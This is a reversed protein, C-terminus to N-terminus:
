KKSYILISSEPMAIQDNATIIEPASDGPGSWQEEASDIVKKFKGKLGAPIKASGGETGFNIIALIFDDGQWREVIVSREFESVRMNKKDPVKLVPHERRLKILTKYYEFMAQKEKSNGIRWSLISRQFTEKDSPDPAEKGYKFFSKFERSRGERVQKNLEPDLHSVFYLFPNREAYEEGMFLMPINPTVCMTGAAVKALELSTLSILREGYKRNGVQDHNQHYIVFQEGPLDGASSGYTKKRFQSYKGDYIFTQEIAKSLQKIEGYDKYYGMQEGTILTHLAHHFDDSWQGHIGYGGSAPPTIIRTDNLDSEAIL